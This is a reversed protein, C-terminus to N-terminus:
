EENKIGLVKLLNEQYKEEVYIEINSGKLYINWEGSYNCVYEINEIKVWEFDKIQVFM